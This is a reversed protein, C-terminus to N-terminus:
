DLLGKLKSLLTGLTTDKLNIDKWSAPSGLAAGLETDGALGVDTWWGTKGRSPDGGTWEDLKPNYRRTADWYLSRGTLGDILQDRDSGPRLPDKHEVGHEDTWNYNSKRAHAENGAIAAIIAAWMAAPGLGAGGGSTTLSSEPGAAFTTAGSSQLGPGTADPGLAPVNVGNGFLGGFGNGLLGKLDLGSQKYASGLGSLQSMKSQQQQRAVMAPPVYARASQTTLPSTRYRNPYM